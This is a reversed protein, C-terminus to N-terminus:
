WFMCNSNEEREFIEFIKFYKESNKYKRNNKDSLEKTKISFIYKKVSFAVKYVKFHSITLCMAIFILKSLNILIM